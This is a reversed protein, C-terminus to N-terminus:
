VLKNGEAYLDDVSLTCKYYIYIVYNPLGVNRIKQEKTNVPAGEGKIAM